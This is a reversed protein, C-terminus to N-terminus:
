GLNLAMARGRWAPSVGVRQNDLRQVTFLFLAFLSQQVAPVAKLEGGGGTQEEKRQKEKPQM